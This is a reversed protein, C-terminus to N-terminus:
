YSATTNVLEISIPQQGVATNALFTGTVALTIQKGAKFNLPRCTWVINATADSAGNAKITFSFPNVGGAMVPSNFVLKINAEKMLKAVWATGGAPDFQMKNALTGDDIRVVLSIAYSRRVIDLTSPAYSGVIMKDDVPQAIQAAFAGSIVKAATGTPLEITGLPSIFQPGGDLYTAPAWLSIDAVSSPTGAGIFAVEGEVFRAARWSLVLSALRMDPYLEGWLQGPAQRGSYWPIDFEDTNHTFVHKYTSNPIDHTVTDKGLLGMLLLGLTDPRPIISLAGGTVVGAKVVDREMAGGGVEPDLPINMNGIALGGERFLLYKFAADTTNPTGKAVQKAFGIVTKDSATM